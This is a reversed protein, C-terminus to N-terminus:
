LLHPCNQLRIFRNVGRQSRLKCHHLYSLSWTEQLLAACALSHSFLFCLNPRCHLIAFCSVRYHLIAFCLCLQCLVLTNKKLRFRICSICIIPKDGCKQRMNGFIGSSQGSNSSLSPTNIPLLPHIYFHNTEASNIYPLPVESWSWGWLDCGCFWLHREMLRGPLKVCVHFYQCFTNQNITCKWICVMGYKKYNTMYKRYKQQHKIQMQADISNAAGYHLFSTFPNM